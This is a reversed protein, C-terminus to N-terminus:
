SKPFWSWYDIDVKGAGTKRDFGERPVERRATMSEVDVIIIRTTHVSDEGPEFDTPSYYNMFVSFAERLEDPEHIIRANGYAIVSEWDGHCRVGEKYDKMNGYYKNVIYCVRSNARIMDLKRGTTACHFYLKGEVYAHNIPVAYPEEDHCMVLVGTYSSKLIRECEANNSIPKIPKAM